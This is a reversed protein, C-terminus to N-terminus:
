EMSLGETESDEFNLTQDLYKAYISGPYVTAESPHEFAVEVDFLEELKERLFDVFHQKADALVRGIVPVFPKYPVKIQFATQEQRIYQVSYLHPHVDRVQRIQEYIYTYFMTQIFAKNSEKWDGNFFNFLPMDGDFGEGRVQLPDGGTKYDVIRKQGNVTDVRDIIGKLVVSNPKNQVKIPFELLFDETNELELLHIPANLHRDHNLFLRCYEVSIQWLIKEKGSFHTENMADKGPHFEQIVARTCFEPVRKILAGLREPTIPEKNELFPAYALEMAHHVVSGLRNAELTASLKPPEKIGAIYRFYFELPSNVYMSFASASLYRRSEPPADQLFLRLKEWVAGTKQIRIPPIDARVPLTENKSATLRLEIEEVELPSEYQIQRAFRSVEGNSQENIMGDYVIVIREFRHLLRYFLYASLAQQNDIVPMKYARRLNYPIFTPSSQLTPLNGENAGLLYITDFNLSRSELLGMIQLGKLPEGSLTATLQDLQRRILKIALSISLDAYAEFGWALQRIAQEAKDILSSETGYQRSAIWSSGGVEALLDQLGQVLAAVTKCPTFFQPFRDFAEPLMNKVTEVPFRPRNEEAIAQTVKTRISSPIMVFPHRIFDLMLAHDIEALPLRNTKTAIFLQVELYLNLFTYTLSETMPYGMTINVDLNEPMSQLVPILLNEDALIVAASADPTTAQSGQNAQLLEYLLKAQATYGPAAIVEVRGNNPSQTISSPSEGLANLLGHERMNQRIFHGAEMHADDLYYADVDFYFLAKGESQWKKFLTVECANLANFGVFLVHDYAETPDSVGDKNEALDRYMGAMTHQGRQELNEKFSHYLQPLFRWLNLFRAQLESHKDKSFASWFQVLFAQQEETLFDFERDLEAMFSLEQFIRDVPIREYDIQAFDSLIIEAIPFFYDLSEEYSPNNRRQLNTHLENLLFLQATNNLEKRSTSLRIFEQITFYQPSWFAKGFLASLEKNLYQAPRQNNFVVAVKSLEPGFRTAMDDAVRALFTQTIPKKNEM